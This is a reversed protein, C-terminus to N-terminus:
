AANPAGLVHRSMVLYRIDDALHDFDGEFRKLDLRDDDWEGLELSNQLQPCNSSITLAMRGGVDSNLLENVRIWGERRAKITGKRPINLKESLWRNANVIRGDVPYRGAPDGILATVSRGDIMKKLAALQTFKDDTQIMVEDVIHMYPPQVYALLAAFNYGHDVGVFWKGSGSPMDDRIQEGKTLIFARGGSIGWEGLYEARFGKDGLTRRAVELQTETFANPNDLYNTHIEVVSALKGIYDTSTKNIFFRYLWHGFGAVNSDFLRFWLHKNKQDRLRSELKAFLKEPLQEAQALYYGTLTAGITTAWKSENDLSRCRVISYGKGNAAKVYIDDESKKLEWFQRPFEENWATHFIDRIQKYTKAGILVVQGPHARCRQFIHWLCARTKGPGVGGHFVTYDARSGMILAQKKFLAAPNSLVHEVLAPM